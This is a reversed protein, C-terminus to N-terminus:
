MKNHRVRGGGDRGRKGSGLEVGTERSRNVGNWLVVRVVISHKLCTGIYKLLATSVSLTFM